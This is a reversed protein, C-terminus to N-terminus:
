LVPQEPHYHTLFSVDVPSVVIETDGLMESQTMRGSAVEMMFAGLKEVGEEMSYEKSLIGGLNVDINDAFSDATAPNGTIKVTPSVPSGVPNGVGTSFLIMQAGSISLATINETGPAPADLFILGKKTPREGYELVEQLPRTGGKRVNGLAKEELTTLGGAINDASMPWVRTGQYIAQDEMRKVVMKMRAAVEPTVAREILSQEAGVVEETESLIWTAGADVMFDGLMGLLPNATIGSTTDSGGCEAGIILESLPAPERRQASAKGLLRVALRVGQETAKLTGGCPQVALWEVDTGSVAIAEALAQASRPELSVVLAAGFNPNRGLGALAGDHRSKDLGTQGRGFPVTVAVAGRVLSAIRRAVPNVNDMAAIVALRNRIGIQGDPRRYGWFEQTFAMHM